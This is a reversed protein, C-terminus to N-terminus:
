RTPTAPSSASARAGTPAEPAATRLSCARSGSAPPRRTRGIPRPWSARPLSWLRVKTDKSGTALVQTDAPGHPRFAVATVTNGHERLVLSSATESLAWVRATTDDSGSAVLQGDPSFAVAQVAGSHGRLVLAPTGGGPTWVRVTQDDSGSALM